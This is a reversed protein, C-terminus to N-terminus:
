HLYISCALTLNFDLSPPIRNHNGSGRPSCPTRGNLQQQFASVVHLSKNPLIVFPRSGQSILSCIYDNAVHEVDAAHPLCCIPNGTGIKNIGHRFSHDFCSGDKGLDCSLPPEFHNCIHRMLLCTWFCSTWRSSGM